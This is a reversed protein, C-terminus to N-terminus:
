LTICISIVGTLQTFMAREQHFSTDANMIWVVTQACTGTPWSQPQWSSESHALCLSITIKVMCTPAWIAVKGLRKSEQVNWTCPYCWNCIDQLQVWHFNKRIRCTAIIFVVIEATQRVWQRSVLGWLASFATSWWVCFCVWLHLPPSDIWTSSISTVCKGTSSKLLCVFPHSTFSFVPAYSNGRHDSSTHTCSTVLCWATRLFTTECLGSPWWFYQSILKRNQNYIPWVKQHEDIM